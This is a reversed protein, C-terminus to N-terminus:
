PAKFYSTLTETYIYGSQIANTPFIYNLNINQRYYLGVGTAFKEIGYLKSVLNDDDAQLVTMTSDFSLSGLTEPTNLTKVQYDQADLINQSNGNWKQNLEPKFVMKIFRLNDEVREATTTTRNSAWVKFIVWNGLSDLKYRAVRQTPRQQNDLYTSDLVEKLEYSVTDHTNNFDNWYISDVHYIRTLGVESPFYTYGFNVNATTTASDKKCGNLLILLLGSLLLFHHKKM